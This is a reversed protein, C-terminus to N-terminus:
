RYVHREGSNFIGNGIYAVALHDDDDIVLVALVLAVKDAASFAVGSIMEKIATCPRPSIQRGSVSSRHSSSCSKGCVCSFVDLMPVANVVEISALSPTVVPIEAASRAFVINVATSGM